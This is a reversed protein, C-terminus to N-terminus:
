ARRQFLAGFGVAAIVLITFSLALPLLGFGFFFRVMASVAPPNGIPANPLLATLSQGGFWRRQVLLAAVEMVVGVIACMGAAKVRGRYEAAVAVDLKAVEVAFFVLGIVVCAVLSIEAGFLLPAHLQAFIGAVALLTLCFFIASHFAKTRSITLGAGVIAIGALLFFTMESPM